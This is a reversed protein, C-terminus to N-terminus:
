TRLLSGAWAQRVILYNNRFSDGYGREDLWAGISQGAGGAKANARQATARLTDLSQYNFRIIDWIMRWHSPDLLNAGQAFLAAPSSGAWEFAGRQLAGTRGGAKTRAPSSSAEASPFSRSVAFSMDSSLIPISLHKLFRLFNPYTVQM